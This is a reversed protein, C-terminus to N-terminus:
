FKYFIILLIISIIAQIFRAKIFPKIKFDNLISKIQLIISLGGFSIFLITYLKKIEISLLPNNLQNLGQSIELLGSILPNTSPNIITNIIFFFTITGLITLLTNMSKQISTLLTNILTSTRKTPNIITNNFTKPRLIIGVLINALYPIIFLKITILSNNFIQNLMNLYFLPSTFFSFSFIYNAEEITIKQDLVLNKIIYANTPTGSFLSTFFIFAGYPNTHFIKSFINGFLKTLLEPLELYILLDTIIFMPFLSPFIKNIFLNCAKLISTNIENPIIFLILTFSLIILLYIINKQMTTEKKQYLSTPPM